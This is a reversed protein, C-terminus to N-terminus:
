IYADSSLPATVKEPKKTSNLSKKDKLVLEENEVDFDEFEYSDEDFSSINIRSRELSLGKSEYNM